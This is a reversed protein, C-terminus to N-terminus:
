VYKYKAVFYKVMVKMVVEIYLTNLTPTIIPDVNLHKVQNPSDLNDM